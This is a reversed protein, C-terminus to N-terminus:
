MILELDYRCPTVMYNRRSFISAAAVTSSENGNGGAVVVPVKLNQMCIACDFIRLGRESGQGPKSSPSSPEATAQTFGIPMRAGSEEDDERLVPHYDYAPPAWASRIFFRPGLIEQSILVWVQIWVWAILVYAANRDVTVSLVNDSVTYFYVFPALRLCSQGIVFEFRLARRSNRMTNRYIQPVWFSLYVFSVVNTYASRLATPWTTAHLSLIMVVALALYLRIFVAKMDGSASGQATQITPQAADGAAAAELDQDPPLIVPTAGTDTARRATVPLPLGPPEDPGGSVAVPPQARAEDTPNAPRQRAAELREPAQVTWIDMLFKMGFFGVSLFGLFAASLAMLHIADVM